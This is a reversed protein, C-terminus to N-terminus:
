SGPPQPRRPGSPRAPLCAVRRRRGGSRRAPTRAARGTLLVAPETGLAASRGCGLQAASPRIGFRPIRPPSPSLCETAHQGAHGRGTGEVGQRHHWATGPEQQLRRWWSEARAWAFDTEALLALERMADAALLRDTAASVEDLCHRARASDRMGAAACGEGFRAAMAYAEDAAGDATVAAFTDRAEIWRGELLLCQGAALACLWPWPEAPVARALARWCAVAPGPDVAFSGALAQLWDAAFATLADPSLHGSRSLREECANLGALAAEVVAAAPPQSVTELYRQNEPLAARATFCRDEGLDLVRLYFPIAFVHIGADQRREAARRALDRSDAARPLALLAQEWALAAELPRGAVEHAAALRRFRAAAYEPVADLDARNRQYGTAGAAALEAITVPGYLEAARALAAEAEPCRGTRLALEALREWAALSSRSPSPEQRQTVSRYSAGAAATAGLAAQADGALLLIDPSAPKGNAATALLPQLLALAEAPKQAVFLARATAVPGSPTPSTAPPAALPPV